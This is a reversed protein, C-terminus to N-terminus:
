DNFFKSLTEIIKEERKDIAEKNWNPIEVLSKCEASVSQAYFQKKDNFPLNKARNNLKKELTVLNGLRNINESYEDKTFGDQNNYSKKPLIHEIEIEDNADLSIQQNHHLTSHLIVIGSNYKRLNSKKIEAISQEIEPEKISNKITNIYDNNHFVDKNIKFIDNKISTISNHVLGKIYSYRVMQKLLLSFKDQNFSSLLTANNDIELHQILFIYIPEFPKNNPYNKLCEILNRNKGDSKQLFEHAQKFKNLYNITKEYDLCESRNNTFFRRLSILSTTNNHEARIYSMYNNFMSTSNLENNEFEILEQWNTLFENTDPARQYLTAKFIDNETLPLGRNNLTSFINIASDFNNCQISLLKVKTIIYTIFDEFEDADADKSYEEIKNAFVYFNKIYKNKNQSKDTKEDLSIINAFSENDKDIVLTTIKQKTYDIVALDKPSSAFLLNQLKKFSRNKEFLARILLLLSTLRQQGDVVNLHQDGLKEDPYIVINGLFYYSSNNKNNKYEQYADYIDSWLQECEGEEWSYPRQYDPIIYHKQFIVEISEPNAKLAEM